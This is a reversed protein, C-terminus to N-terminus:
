LFYIISFEWKFITYGYWHSACLCWDISWACCREGWCFGSNEKVKRVGFLM